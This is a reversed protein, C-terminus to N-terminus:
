IDGFSLPGRKLGGERIVLVGNLWLWYKSDVAVLATLAQKNKLTFETKFNVWTNPKSSHDTWIWQAESFHQTAYVTTAGLVSMFCIIRYLKQM